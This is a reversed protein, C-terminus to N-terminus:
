FSPGGGLVEPMNLQPGFREIFGVLIDKDIKLAVAQLGPQNLGATIAEAAGFAQNLDTGDRVVRGVLWWPTRFVNGHLLNPELQLRHKRSAVSVAKEIAKSIDKQSVRSVGDKTRVM